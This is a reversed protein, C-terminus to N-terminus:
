RLTDGISMQNLLRGGHQSVGVAFMESLRRVADPVSSPTFSEIDSTSVLTAIPIDAAPRVLVGVQSRHLWTAAYLVVIQGTDSLTRPYSPLGMCARYAGNSGFLANSLSNFRQGGSGHRRWYEGHKTLLQLLGYEPVAQRELDAEIVEWTM